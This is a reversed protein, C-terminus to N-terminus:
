KASLGTSVWGEEPNEKFQAIQLRLRRLKSRLNILEVLLPGALYMFGKSMILSITRGSYAQMENYKLCFSM